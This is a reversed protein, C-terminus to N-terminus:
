GSSASSTMPRPSSTSPTTTALTCQTPCRSSRALHTPRQLSFAFTTGLTDVWKMAAPKLPSQSTTAMALSGSLFLIHETREMCVHSRVRYWKKHAPGGHVSIWSQDEAMEKFAAFLPDSLQTEEGPDSHSYV